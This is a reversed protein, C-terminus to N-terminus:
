NSLLGHHAIMLFCQDECFSVILSLESNLVSDQFGNEGYYELSM